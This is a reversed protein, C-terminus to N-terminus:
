ALAESGAGARALRPMVALKPPVARAASVLMELLLVLKQYARIGAHAHAQFPVDLRGLLAAVHEGPLAAPPFGRPRAPRPM